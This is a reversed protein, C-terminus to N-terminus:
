NQSELIRYAREFNGEDAVNRLAMSLREVDSKLEAIMSLLAESDANPATVIKAVKGIESARFKAVQTANVGVRQAVVPDSWGDKYSVIGDFITANERILAEIEKRQGYTLARRESKLEQAM